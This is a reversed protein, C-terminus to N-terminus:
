GKMAQIDVKFDSTLHVKRLEIDFYFAAKDFAGHATIPAVINPKTIGREQGWKKYSLLAIIISETGGSTALGCSGEPGHYLNLTMRIIEAELQSISAFEAAWLPNSEITERMVEGIFDWHKENSCFVSASLKGGDKYFKDSEKQGQKIRSM